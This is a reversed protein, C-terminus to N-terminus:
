QAPTKAPKAPAPKSGSDAKKEGKAPELKPAGAPPVLAAAAASLKAQIEAVQQQLVMARRQAEDLQTKLSDREM